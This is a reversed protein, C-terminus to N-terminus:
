ASNIGRVNNNFYSIIGVKRLLIFKDRREILNVERASNLIMLSVNTLM